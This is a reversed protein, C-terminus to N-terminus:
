RGAADALIREAVTEQLAAVDIVAKMTTKYLRLNGDVISRSCDAGDRAARSLLSSWLPQLAPDPVPFYTRSEQAAKVMDLCKPRIRDGAFSRDTFARDDQLATTIDILSTTLRVTLSSGGLRLWATTQLALVKPSSAARRTNPGALNQQNLSTGRGPGESGDPLSVATTLATACLCVVLAAARRVRARSLQRTPRGPPLIPEARPRRTTGGATRVLSRVAKTAAMGLLAAFASVFVGLGLVLPVVLGTLAPQLADPTWHCTSRFTNLPGLCGDASTLVFAAALGALAATGASVLGTLLPLRSTTASIVAATVAMACVLAAALCTLFVVLRVESFHASPQWSHMWLMVAVVSTWAAATGPGAALLVRRSSPLPVARPEADLEAARAGTLARRAWLPPGDAPGRAWALLPLAWLLAATWMLLRDTGLPLVLPLVAAIASLVGEHGAASGSLDHELAQRIADRSFAWGTAFLDGYTQWWAYWIGFVAWTAILGTALALRLTRGRWSRVALEALQATWCMVGISIVVLLTYVQWYSPLWREGSVSGTLLEGCALGTGLWWGTGLGTPVRDRLLVARAVARWLSVGPIAAILGAILASLLRTVWAPGSLLNLLASLQSAAVAATAGTVFTTLASSRFLDRSDALSAARQEWTPHTRLLGVFSALAASGRGPAAPRRDAQRHWGGTHAGWRVADLDAYLERTRLIDARAVYVFAVTAATLAADRGDAVRESPGFVPSSWAVHLHMATWVLYAPLVLVLYIRWIAVTAFTIDIDRNRVHALEHLVVARFGEPDQHRRALLGGHLCVSHRRWRGFVVAGATAAAPAVVFRPARALGTAGVLAALVRRVEGDADVAEVPVVRGRREKWRPLLWYLVGAVLLLGGVVCLPSWWLPGGPDLRRVCTEYADGSRITALALSQLDTDPDAGAALACGVAYHHPDAWEDIITSAMRASSTLFLVVLLAFRLGTGAGLVREDLRVPGPLAPVGDSVQQELDTM